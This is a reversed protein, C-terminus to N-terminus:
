STKPLIEDADSDKRNYSEDADLNKVDRESNENGKEKGNGNDRTPWIERSASRIGKPECRHGNPHSGCKDAYHKQLYDTEDETKWRRLGCPKKQGPQNFCSPAGCRRRGGGGKKARTGM